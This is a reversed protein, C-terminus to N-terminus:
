RKTGRRRTQEDTDDVAEEVDARRRRRDHSQDAQEANQDALLEDRKGLGQHRLLGSGNGPKL